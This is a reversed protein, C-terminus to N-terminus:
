ECLESGDGLPDSTRDVADDEVKAEGRQLEIVRLPTEAELDVSREVHAQIAASRSLRTDPLSSRRVRVCYPWSRHAARMAWRITSRRRRAGSFVVLSRTSTTAPAMGRPAQGRSM